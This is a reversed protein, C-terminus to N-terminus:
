QLVQESRTRRAPPSKQEMDPRRDRGAEKAAEPWREHSDHDEECPSQEEPGFLGVPGHESRDAHHQRPDGGRSVSVPASPVEPNAGGGASTTQM